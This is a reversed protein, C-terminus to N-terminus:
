RRRRGYGGKCPRARVECRVGGTDGAACNLSRSESLRFDGWSAGYEWATFAQWARVAAIEAARKTSGNGAGDHFHDAMCTKGRLSVWAHIAAVGTEQATASKGWAGTLLMAGMAAAMWKRTM